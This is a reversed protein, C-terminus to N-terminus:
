QIGPPIPRMQLTNTLTRPTAKKTKTTKEKKTTTTKKTATTKNYEGAVLSDIPIDFDKSMQELISIDPMNRGNEWKSVAQYTVNYKDALDKQTLGNEKRIKKILKGFKEQNM